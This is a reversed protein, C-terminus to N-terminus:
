LMLKGLVEIVEWDDWEVCGGGFFFRRQWKRRHWTPSRLDSRCLINEKGLITQHFRVSFGKVIPCPYGM